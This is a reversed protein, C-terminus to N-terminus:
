GDARRARYVAAMGGQGLEDLIEYPGIQRGCNLCSGLLVERVSDLELAPKDLFNEDHHKLLDEIEDRLSHNGGCFADLFASRKGPTQALAGAFGEELLLEDEQSM